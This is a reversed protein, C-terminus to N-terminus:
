NLIIGSCNVVIHIRQLFVKSYRPTIDLTPTIKKINMIPMGNPFLSIDEFIWIASFKINMTKTEMSVVIRWSIICMIKLWFKSLTLNIVDNLIAVALTENDLMQIQDLSPLTEATLAPIIRSM